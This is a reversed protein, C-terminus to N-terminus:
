DHHIGMLHLLGHEVLFLIKDDVLKNEKMAQKRAQPFSVVIDGLQLGFETADVFGPSISEPDLGSYPFSLVDTTGPEGKYKKHLQGMKRDGVIAISVEAPSVIGKEELVQKVLSRLRKRDVPFKSDASINVKVM